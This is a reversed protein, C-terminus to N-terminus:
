KYVPNRYASGFPLTSFASLPSVFLMGSRKNTKTQVHLLSVGFSVIWLSLVLQKRKM